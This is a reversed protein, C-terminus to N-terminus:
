PLSVLYKQFKMAARYNFLAQRAAEKGFLTEHHEVPGLIPVFGIPCNFQKKFSSPNLASKGQADPILICGGSIPFHLKLLNGNSLHFTVNAPESNDYNYFINEEAVSISSLNVAHGRIIGQPGQVPTANRATAHRMAAALIRFAALITSKGANNPGVLINFQNLRVKFSKFAKFHSFEVSNFRHLENM